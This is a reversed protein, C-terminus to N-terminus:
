PAAEETAGFISRGFFRAIDEAEGDDSPAAPAPASVPEKPKGLPNDADRQALAELSYNQQQLYPSEGGKVPKLDLERRGENPSLIGAGIGEKIVSMQTVSDMRLLAKVNFEVGTSPELDFGEDLCIEVDEILRQLGQSMYEINLAQVNNYSPMAGVGIKYPPVHFTSCVVEATWRLQEILQADVASMAMQEYKLGDGLVAVKGFKGGGFSAEWSTKLTSATEDSIRGPATLIGGPMSGNKFLNTANNQISVGQMAALGNASIPSMGVLPHYLCNFRDHVMESAPVYVATQLQALDDDQVKYYVDGSDSVFTQVRHPDLIHLAVVVGRPSRQKLAYTNGTSLKSLLWSEFFQIRNQYGNPKRLVRSVEPDTVEGWVGDSALRVLRLPMKAIDSAILTMCSFVASYTLVTDNNIEVNQQWAGSFSERVIPLWGGRDSSVQSLSKAQHNGRTINLGFIRM